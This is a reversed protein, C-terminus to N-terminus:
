NFNPHGILSVRPSKIFEIISAECFDLFIGRRATEHIEMGVGLGMYSPKLGEHLNGSRYSYIKNLLKKRLSRASKTGRKINFIEEFNGHAVINNLAEPILEDYFEIFRKTLKETRWKQNPSTLAEAAVVFLICAVADHQQKVAADFSLFASRMLSFVEIGGLVSISSFIDLGTRNRALTLIKQDLHLSNLKELEGEKSSFITPPLDVGRGLAFTCIAAVIELVGHAVHSSFHGTCPSPIAIHIHVLSKPAIFQERKEFDESREEAFELLVDEGLRRWGLIRTQAGLLQLFSGMSNPQAFNNTSTTITTTHWTVGGFNGKEFHQIAKKALGDILKQREAESSVFNLYPPKEIFEAKVHFEKPSGYSYAEGSSGYQDLPLAAELALRRFWDGLLMRTFKIDM